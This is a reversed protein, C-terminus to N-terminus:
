AARITTRGSIAQCAANAPCCHRGQRYWSPIKNLLRNRSEVIILPVAWGVSYEGADKKSLGRFSESSATSM